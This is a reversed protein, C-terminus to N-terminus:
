SIYRLKAIDYGGGGPIELIEMVKYATCCLWNSSLRICSEQVEDNDGMKVIRLREGITLGEELNNSHIYEGEVYRLLPINLILGGIEDGLEKIETEFIHIETNVRIDVLIQDFVPAREIPLAGVGDWGRMFMGLRFFSHIARDIKIKFIESAMRIKYIERISESTEKTLVEVHNIASRLSNRESITEETDEPYVLRCILKLKRIALGSFVTGDVPNLFAKTKTFHLALESYLFAYMNTDGPRNSNADNTGRSGYCVIRTSLVERVNEFTLTMENSVGMPYIGHYFTDSFYASQLLSYYSELIFDPETFGEALAMVRLDVSEYMNQPVLPNFFVDLRLISPMIRALSKLYDDLPEYVGNRDINVRLHEYEVLPSEALSIDINYCLCALIVAEVHNRPITKRRIDHISEFFILSQDLADRSTEWYSLPPPPIILTEVPCPIMVVDDDANADEDEVADAEVEVDIDLDYDEEDVRRRGTRDEDDNRDDEEVDRSRKKLMDTGVIYMKALETNRLDALLDAFLINRMHQTRDYLVMVTSAMQEISLDKNAAVGNMRLLRYLMCANYSEPNTTLAQGYVFNKVSSITPSRVFLFTFDMARQLTPVDWAVRRNILHTALIIETQRLPYHFVFKNSRAAISMVINVHPPILEGYDGIECPIDYSEAIELLVVLPTNEDLSGSIDLKSLSFSHQEM